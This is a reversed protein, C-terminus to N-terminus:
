HNGRNLRDELVALREGHNRVVDGTKRIDEKIEAIDTKLDRIASLTADDHDKRFLRICCITSM